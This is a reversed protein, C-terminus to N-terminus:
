SLAGFFIRRMLGYSICMPQSLILIILLITIIIIFIGYKSIANMLLAKVFIMIVGLFLIAAMAVVGSILLYM